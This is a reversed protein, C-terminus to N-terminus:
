WLFQTVKRELLRDKVRREAEDRQSKSLEVRIQREKELKEREALEEEYVRQLQLEPSNYQNEFAKQEDEL